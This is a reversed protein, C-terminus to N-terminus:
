TDLLPEGLHTAAQTRAAGRARGPYWLYFSGMGMVRPVRVWSLARSAGSARRGLWGGGEASRQGDQEAGGPSGAVSGSDEGALWWARRPAHPAAGAESASSSGSWSGEEWNEDFSDSGVVSGVRAPALLPASLRAGGSAER